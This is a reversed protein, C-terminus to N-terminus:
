PVYSIVLEPQDTGHESAYLPDYDWAADGDTLTTRYLRFQCKGRGEALDERVSTTVDLENWEVMPASFAGCSTLGAPAAAFDSADIEGFDTQLHEVLVDETLHPNPPEFTAATRLRLVAKEIAAGDPLSLPFSVLVQMTVDDANDGVSMEPGDSNVIGNSFVIGDQDCHVTEVEPTPGSGGCGVLAFAAVVVASSVSSILSRNM